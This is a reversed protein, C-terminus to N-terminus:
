SAALWTPAGFQIGDAMLEQDDLAARGKAMMRLLPGREGGRFVYHVDVTLKELQEGKGGENASEIEGLKVYPPQLGEEANEVVKITGDSLAASLAAFVADQTPEILDIIM